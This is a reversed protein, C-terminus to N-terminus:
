TFKISKNFTFEGILNSRILQCTLRSVLCLSLLDLLERLFLDLYTHKM